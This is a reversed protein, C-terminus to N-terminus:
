AVAKAKKRCRKIKEVLGLKVIERWDFSEKFEEEADIKRKQLDPAILHIHMPVKPM